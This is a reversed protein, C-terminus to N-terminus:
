LFKILCIGRFIIAKRIQKAKNELLGAKRLDCALGAAHRQIQASNRRRSVPEPRNM